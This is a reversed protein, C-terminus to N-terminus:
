RKLFKVCTTSCSFPCIWYIIKPYLWSLKILSVVYSLYRGFYVCSAFMNHFNSLVLAEQDQNLNQYKVQVSSMVKHIKLSNIDDWRSMNSKNIFTVYPKASDLIEWYQLNAHDSSLKSLNKPFNQSLPCFAVDPFIGGNVEIQVKENYNYDYYLRLILSLHIILGTFAACLFIVWCLKATKTNLHSLFSFGHIATHALFKEM